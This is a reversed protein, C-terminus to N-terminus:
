GAPPACAVSTRELGRLGAVMNRCLQLRSFGHTLCYQHWFRTESVYSQGKGNKKTDLGHRSVQLLSERAADEAALLEAAVREKDRKGQQAKKAADEVKELFAKSTAGVGM